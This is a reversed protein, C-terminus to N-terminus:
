MGIIRRTLILIRSFYDIGVKRIIDSIYDTLWLRAEDLGLNFVYDKKGTYVNRKDGPSVCFGIQMSWQWSPVKLLEKRNLVM